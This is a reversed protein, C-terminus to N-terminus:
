GLLGATGAWAVQNALSSARSLGAMKYSDIEFDRCPKDMARVPRYANAPQACIHAVVITRGNAGSNFLHTTRCPGAEDIVGDGDFDYTYTVEGGDGPAADPCMDFTVKLPSPGSIRGMEAAPETRFADSAYARTSGDASDGALAPASPGAVDVARSCAAASAASIAAIVIRKRLEPKVAGGDFM